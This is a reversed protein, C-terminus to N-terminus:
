SRINVPCCLHPHNDSVNGWSQWDANAVWERDQKGSGGLAIVTAVAALSVADQDALLWQKPSLKEAFQIEGLGDAPIEM